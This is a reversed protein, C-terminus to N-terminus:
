SRYSGNIKIYDYTLDCGWATATETGTKFDILIKVEKQSLIESANEESFDLAKGDKAVQENGLFIDVKGPDFDAGSYGAACIIRGWNADAGFIATKVLNSAAVTKAALRADNVTAANIVKVEVLKTAGEGDGAIEKSLSICVECLACCFLEFDSGESDLQQNGAAGNALLLVMDNTSTDGDVTIMNFTKEVVSKLAKNLLHVDVAADTTIFGLMTAMNPHIMGSGKAMGGIVVPVGSLEFKVAIQKSVTDTTMIAEAADPGGEPSLQSVALAIGNLIKDMPLNQGIVGTSAVLVQNEQINLSEALVSSTKLADRLGQPGNCANAYGSNIIVAQAHGDSLRQRTLQVPAAQVKNTTYVGTASCPLKSYIIALDKKDNKIGARVGCATFGSAATVGGPVLELKFEKSM